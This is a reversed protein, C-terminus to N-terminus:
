EGDSELRLQGLAQLAPHGGAAPTLNSVDIECPQGTVDECVTQIPLNLILGQRIYDDRMLSNNQFLPYPEEAVIRAMGGSGYSSPIGEIPFQDDMTFEFPVTLATGCRACEVVCSATFDCEVLLMNGTSVAELNGTVPEVLDLDEEQPLETRISFHLRKGPQQVAENLDLLDERKM